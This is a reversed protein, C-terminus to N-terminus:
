LEEEAVLEEYAQELRALEHEGHLGVIADLKRLVTMMSDVGHSTYGDLLLNLGALLRGRQQTGPMVVLADLMTMGVADRLSRDLIERGLAPPIWYRDWDAGEYAEEDVGNGTYLVADTPTPIQWRSKGVVLTGEAGDTLRVGYLQQDDSPIFNWTEVVLDGPIQEQGIRMQEEKM